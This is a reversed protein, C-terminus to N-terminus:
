NTNIKNIYEEKAKLFENYDSTFFHEGTQENKLVYYLYDTKAPNLVANITDISPNCIPGIPLGDVYYTNYPSQIKTDEILTRDNHEGKAYLTTADMQLKMGQKLRNFVVSAVIPKEPAYKVEREIISAITVVEDISLGMDSAKKITESTFLEDFRTLLKNIVMEPTSNDYIFYTDPYLYGELKSKRQTDKPMSILFSYDFTTNNCANMFQDATMVGMQELSNAIDQQTQGEKILLTLEKPASQELAQQEYKKHQKYISYVSISILSTSVFIFLSILSFIVIIKIKNQKKLKKNKNPKNQRKKDM